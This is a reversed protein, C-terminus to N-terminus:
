GRCYFSNCSTRVASLQLVNGSSGGALVGIMGDGEDGVAVTQTPPAASNECDGFYRDDGTDGCVGRIASM